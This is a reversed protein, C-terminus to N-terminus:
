RRGVQEILRKTPTPWKTVTLTSMIPSFGAIHRDDGGVETVPVHSTAFVFEYTGADAAGLRDRIVWDFRHVTRGEGGDVVAIPGADILRRIPSIQHVEIWADPDCLIAGTSGSTVLVDIRLTTRGWRIPRSAEGSWSIVVERDDVGSRPSCSAESSAAALAMSTTSSSLVLAVALGPLAARNM